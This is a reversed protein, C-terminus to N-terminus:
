LADLGLSKAKDKLSKLYHIAEDIVVMGDKGRGGPIMSQLISVTERIKEKRSRKNGSISNSEESVQNDFNGCNSEADDEIDSLKYPKESSPANVPSPVAYDGSLLKRRKTPSDSSAVEEGREGLWEQIGHETMTSPSHGTSTVEDDDDDDDNEDDSYLLANLEETDEHMESDADDRQTEEHLGYNTFPAFNPFVDKKNGFDEMVPDYPAPPKPNWPTPCQMPAGLGSNYILTTKGDCQDFVLFKKQTCGTGGNPSGTRGCKETPESPLNEKQLSNMGPVFAQRFRPLFYSWDCPQSPHSGKSQSLGSITFSPYTGNVSHGNTYPNMYAASNQRVVDLPASLYNLCSHQPHFWSGLDKEM